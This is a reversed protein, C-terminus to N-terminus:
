QKAAEIQITIDVIQGMQPIYDVGWKAREIQASFDGGCVETKLMPSDYCNFREATITLPHTQGKITLEGHVAVLKGDEFEFNNSKFRIEPYNAIDFIDTSKLHHDFQENGSTLKELPLIIDIDGQQQETDLELTGELNHIAARNTSTNFHDIAFQVNAHAPDIQYNAAQANM